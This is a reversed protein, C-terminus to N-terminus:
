VEYEIIEAMEGWLHCFQTVGMEGGKVFSDLSVNVQHNEWIFSQTKKLTCNLAVLSKFVRYFKDDKRCPTPTHTSFMQLYSLLLLSFRKLSATAITYTCMCSFVGNRFEQEQM